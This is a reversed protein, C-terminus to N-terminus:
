ERKSRKIPPPKLWFSLTVLSMYFGYFCTVLCLYLVFSNHDKWDLFDYVPKGTSKTVWYNLAGYAFACVLLPNAHDAKVRIDILCYCALIVLAPIIHSYYMFLIHSFEKYKQIETPHIILWYTSVVIFNFLFTTEFCIHVTALM